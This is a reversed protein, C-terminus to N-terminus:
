GDSGPHGPACERKREICLFLSIPSLPPFVQSLTYIIAHRLSFALQTRVVLVIYHEKMDMRHIRLQMHLEPLLAGSSTQIIIPKEQQSARFQCAFHKQKLDMYANRKGEHVHCMASHIVWLLEQLSKDLASEEKLHFPFCLLPAFYEPDDLIPGPPIVVMSSSIDDRNPLILPPAEERWLIQSGQSASPESM